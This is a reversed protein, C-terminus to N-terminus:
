SMALIEDATMMGSVTVAVVGAGPFTSDGALFLGKIPTRNPLNRAQWQELNSKPGGISGFDRGTHREISIPTSTALVETSARFGPVRKEIMGLIRETEIRKREQYDSKSKWNSYQAETYLMGAHKGIPAAGNDILSPISLMMAPLGDGASWINHVDFGGETFQREMSLYIIFVSSTPKLNHVRNLLKDPVHQKDVLKGFTSWASANSVVLSTDISNGDALKLGRVSGNRVIIETVTATYHIMGGHANITKVLSRTLEGSGGQPYYIGGRHLETFLLAGLIAPCDRINDMAFVQLQAEIVSRLVSSTVSRKLVDFISRNDNVIFLPITWFNKLFWGLQASFRFPRHFPLRDIAKRIKGIRKYYARMQGSACPIHEELDRLYHDFDGHVRIVSGNKMIKFSPELEISKPGHSFEKYMQYLPNYGRDGLGIFISAAADFRHEKRTFSQCCGGAQQSQEFVEVRFGRQACYAGVVLGGIGAGIIAVSDRNM